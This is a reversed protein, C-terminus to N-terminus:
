VPVIDNGFLQQDAETQYKNEPKLFLFGRQLYISSEM